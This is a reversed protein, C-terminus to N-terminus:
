VNDRDNLRIATATLRSKREPLVLSELCALRAAALINGKMDKIPKKERSAKTRHKSKLRQDAIARKALGSELILLLEIKAKIPKIANEKSSEMM